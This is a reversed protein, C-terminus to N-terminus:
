PSITAVGVAVALAAGLVAGVLTALFNVGQNGLHSGELTAGFVSDATMGGVGAAAIVTAGLLGVEDFLVLVILAIVSAGVIGAVEGQWTVGGDTGPDVSQLTTILRPNDFIGGIESSLTDSMATAISGTFAFLFLTGNVQLRPSAAFALLAILAVAANGLVNRTGRAGNNREAVGLARKEEYRFKTSLGGLGFFAILVAFWGYSGLVITLLSLLVGTLMGPISATDLAWSAYGFLTTIVIAVILDLATVDIRLDAFLWLLVAVSFVVLPDDREVLIARLLAALLAGSAALFGVEPGAFPINQVSLVFVQGLFAAIAGVTAFALTSSIPTPTYERIAQEALNGYSLLLISAVFVQVPVSLLTTLLALATAALSFGALGRLQGDRRDSPRAFLEFVPGNTIVLAAVAILAFPVAAAGDLIPATLSITAVAAFAAARRISTTM